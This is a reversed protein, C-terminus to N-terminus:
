FSIRMLNRKSTAATSNIAAAGADASQVQSHSQLPSPLQLCMGTHSLTSSTGGGRGSACGGAIGGSEMLGYRMGAEIPARVHSCM